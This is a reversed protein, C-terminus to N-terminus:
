FSRIYGFRTGLITSDTQWSDQTSGKLGSVKAQRAKFEGGLTIINHETVNWEFGANGYLSSNNKSTLYGSNGIGTGYNYGVVARFLFKEGFPAQYALNVGIIIDQVRALALSTNSTYNVIPYGDNGIDFGPCLQQYFTSKGILCFRNRLFYNDFSVKSDEFAFTTSGVKLTTPDLKMTYHQYDVEMSWLPTMLVRYNVGLATASTTFNYAAGDGGAWKSSIATPAAYIGLQHKPYGIYAKYGSDEPASEAYEPRPTGVPSDGADKFTMPAHRDT